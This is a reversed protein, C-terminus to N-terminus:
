MKKLENSMTETYELRLINWMTETCDIKEACEVSDCLRAYQKLVNWMKMTDANDQCMACQRLMSWITETYKVNDWYLWNEATEFGDYDVYDWYLRELPKVNYWYMACQRLINWLTEARWPSYNSQYTMQDCDCWLWM